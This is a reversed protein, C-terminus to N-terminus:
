IYVLFMTNTADITARADSSSTEVARHRPKERDRESRRPRRGVGAVAASVGQRVLPARDRDVVGNLATRARNARSVPGFSVDRVPSRRPDNSVSEGKSTSREDAPSHRQELQKAISVWGHRPGFEFL